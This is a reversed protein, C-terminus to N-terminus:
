RAPAAAEPHGATLRALYARALSLHDLAIDLLSDSPLRWKFYLEARRLVEDTEGRALLLDCYRYGALGYPLPFTPQAEKQIAETDGLLTRAEDTRGAQHLADALTIRTFM